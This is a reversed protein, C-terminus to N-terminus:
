DELLKGHRLLLECCFQAGFKALAVGAACPHGVQDGGDDVAVACLGDVDGERGLGGGERDAGGVGQQGQVDVAFAVQGQDLVDLAIGYLLDDLVDVEQGDALAFLDRNVNRDVNFAFGGGAGDVVQFQGDHGEFGLGGVQGLGDDDADFAAAGALVDVAGVQDQGLAGDQQGVGLCQDDVDGLGNFDGLFSFGFSGCCFFGCCLLWEASGATAPGRGPGPWQWTRLGADGRDAM